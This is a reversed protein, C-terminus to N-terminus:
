VAPGAGAVFRIRPVGEIMQLAVQAATFDSDQLIKEMEQKLQVVDVVGLGENSWPVPDIIEPTSEGTPDRLNKTFGTAGDTQEDLGFHMSEPAEFVDLTAVEGEFLGILVDDALRDFRIPTLLEDPGPLDLGTQPSKYAEVLLDPYGAVVASRMVFGTTRAASRSLSRSVRLARDHELDAETVRGVSLAGDLLCEIWVPDLHFFRLGEVPLLREDPVLYSFPLGVLHSLDDFWRQVTQPPDSMVEASRQRRLPLRRRSSSRQRAASMQQASQKKWNFLDLAVRTNALTSLRGLEWAAAYSVDLLGTAPDYRLLQDACQAPLSVGDATGGPVLPGRYFSVSKGARRMRHPLPLYGQELYPAAPSSASMAAPLPLRLVSPERDLRRVLRAFTQEPDISNFKWSTLSVLRILDDQKADQFDFTGKTYRTELSVLHVTSAGAPEPLRKGVVTAAVHPDDDEASRRVAPKLRHAHALLELEAYSPLLPELLKRPVDIITVEDEPQQGPELEVGQPYRAKTAPTAILEGLTITQVPPGEAGEDFDSERFLLLALWSFNEDIEGPIREWPLTSRHLTVHPLVNAHAGVSEKPPFVAALDRPALPGFREGAVVFTLHKHFTHPNGSEITLKQEVEVTYTGSELAPQQFELFEIQDDPSTTRLRM